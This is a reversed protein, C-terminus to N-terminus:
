TFLCPAGGRDIFALISRLCVKAQGLGRVRRIKKAAMLREVVSVDVDLVQAACEISLLLKQVNVSAKGIEHTVIPHHLPANQIEGM